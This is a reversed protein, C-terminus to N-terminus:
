TKERSFGLATLVFIMVLLTQLLAPLRQPPNSWAETAGVVLYLMLLYGAWTISRLSGNLVGRLPLLLPVTAVAALLWLSAGHPPPLLAHWITQLAILALYCVRLALLWGTHM